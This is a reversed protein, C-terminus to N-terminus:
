LYSESEVLISKAFADHIGGGWSALQAAHRAVGGPDSMDLEGGSARGLVSHAMMATKTGNKRSV